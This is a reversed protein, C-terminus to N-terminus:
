TIPDRPVLEFDLLVKRSRKEGARCRVLIRFPVGEWLLGRVEGLAGIGRHLEFTM